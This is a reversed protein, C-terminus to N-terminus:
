LEGNQSNPEHVRVENPSAPDSLGANFYSQWDEGIAQRFIQAAREEDKHVDRVLKGLHLLTRIDFQL